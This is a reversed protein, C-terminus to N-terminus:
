RGHFKVQGFGSLICSSLKKLIGAASRSILSLISREWGSIGPGILTCSHNASLSALPWCPFLFSCGTWCSRGSGLRRSADRTGASCLFTFAQSSCPSAERGFLGVPGRHCGTWSSIIDMGSSGSRGGSLNSSSASQYTTLFPRLPLALGM